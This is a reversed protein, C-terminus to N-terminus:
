KERPEDWIKKWNITDKPFDIWSEEKPFGQPRPETLNKFKLFGTMACLFAEFAHNNEIMLKRDQDYLFVVGHESLAHLISRRSDAGGVAHRHFRLHSKMIGLSRGMRWLTLKPYAEILNMNMRRQLFYTRALLPAQNAGLAHNLIFKEELAEALHMEVARQTYPTFVKKPKKQKNKETNSKWMWKIHPQECAEYGPCKLKCTLCLPLEWPSDMTISESQNGYQEIFEQIKFDASVSPESKIKDEVKTLFLKKQAPYYELVALCAKDAKGGSM